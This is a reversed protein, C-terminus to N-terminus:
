SYGTKRVSEILRLYENWVICLSEAADRMPLRIEGHGPDLARLRVEFEADGREAVIDPLLGLSKLLIELARRPTLEEDKESLSKHIAHYLILAAARRDPLM